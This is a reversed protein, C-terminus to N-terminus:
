SCPLKYEVREILTKLDKPINYVAEEGEITVQECSSGTFVLNLFDVRKDKPIGQCFVKLYALANSANNAPDPQSIYGAATLARTETNVQAQHTEDSTKELNVRPYALTM